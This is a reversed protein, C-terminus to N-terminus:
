ASVYPDYNRIRSSTDTHHSVLKMEVGVKELSEALTTLDNDEEVYVYDDKQYSFNTIKREIHLAKLMAREIRVWGHSPDTYYHFVKTFM